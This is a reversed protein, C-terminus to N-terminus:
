RKGLLNVLELRSHTRTKNYINAIHRNVTNESICLAEAIETIMDGKLLANVIEKERDTLGYPEKDTSKYSFGSPYLHHMRLAIHESLIRTIEMERDTFNGTQRDRILTMSGYIVRDNIINACMVYELGLPQMWKEYLETKQIINQQLFDSDRYVLLKDSQNMLWNMYDKGIFEDYYRKLDAGTINLSIPDHYSNKGRYLSYIDFFSAKLSFTEGLQELVKRRLARENSCAYIDLLLENIMQWDKEKLM